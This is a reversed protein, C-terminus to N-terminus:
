LQMLNVLNKRKCMFSLVVNEYNSKQSNEFHTMFLKPCDQIQIQLNHHLKCTIVYWLLLTITFLSYYRGIIEISLYSQLSSYSM